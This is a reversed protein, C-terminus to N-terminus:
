QRAALSFGASGWEGRLAAVPRERRWLEPSVELLNNVDTVGDVNRVAAAAELKESQTGVKGNLTVVGDAAEVWVRRFDAGDTSLLVVEATGALVDDTPTPTPTPIPTPTPAPAPRSKRAKM